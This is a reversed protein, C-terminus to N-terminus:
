AGEDPEQHWFDRTTFVNVMKVAGLAAADIEVTRVPAKKDARGGICGPSEGYDVLAAADDAIDIV